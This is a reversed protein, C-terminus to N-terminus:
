KYIKIIGVLIIALAVYVWTLECYPFVYANACNLYYTELAIIVLLLFTGWVTKKKSKMYKRIIESDM